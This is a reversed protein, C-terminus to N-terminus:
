ARSGARSRARRRAATLFVVSNFTGLKKANTFVSADATAQITFRKAAPGSQGIAEIAQIGANVTPSEDVSSAYFVLVKVNKGGPPSPLSLAATTLSSTDPSPRAEAVTGSLLAAGMASAVLAATM